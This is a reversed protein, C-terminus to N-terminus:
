DRTKSEKGYLKDGKTMISDVLKVQLQTLEVTYKELEDALEKKDEESLGDKNYKEQTFKILNIVEGVRERVELINM